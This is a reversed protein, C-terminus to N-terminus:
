NLLCYGRPCRNFVIGKTPATCRLVFWEAVPAMPGNPELVVLISASKRPVIATRDAQGEQTSRRASALTACNPFVRFFRLNARGNEGKAALAPLAAVLVLLRVM